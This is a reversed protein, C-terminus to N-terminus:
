SVGAEQLTTLNGLLHWAGAGEAWCKQSGTNECLNRALIRVLKSVLIGSRVLILWHKSVLMKGLSEGVFCARLGLSEGCCLM